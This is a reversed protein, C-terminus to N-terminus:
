GVVWRFAYIMGMLGHFVGFALLAWAGWKHVKLHLRGKFRIKRLGVLIQLFLLLLLVTGGSVLMIPKIVLGFLM